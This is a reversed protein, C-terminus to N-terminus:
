SSWIIMPALVTSSSSTTLAMIPSVKSWRSAWIWLPARRWASLAPFDMAELNYSYPLTPVVLVREPRREAAALALTTVILVDTDVPLHPGHQQIAGIPLVVMKKLATAENIEEWTLHDYRIQDRVSPRTPM